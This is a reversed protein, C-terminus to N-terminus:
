LIFIFPPVGVTDTPLFQLAQERYVQAHEAAQDLATCALTMLPMDTPKLYKEQANWEAAIGYALMESPVSLTKGMPTKLIRGDLTVGFWQPPPSNNPITKSGPSRPTLMYELHIDTSGAMPRHIGSASDTGDVGASIPSEVTASKSDVQLLWPAAISTVGVDKYFRLRGAIRTDRSTTSKTTTGGTSTSSSTHRLKPVVVSSSSRLSGRPTSQMSLVRSAHLRSM